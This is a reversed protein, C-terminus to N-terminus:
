FPLDDDPELIEIITKKETVPVEVEKISGVVKLIQVDTKFTEHLRKAETVASEISNHEYKPPTSGTKTQVLFKAM